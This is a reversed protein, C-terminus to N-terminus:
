SWGFGEFARSVRLQRKQTILGLGSINAPLRDPSVEIWPIAPQHILLDRHPVRVTTQRFEGVLGTDEDLLAFRLDAQLELRSDIRRKRTRSPIAADCCRWVRHPSAVLFCDYRLFRHLKVIV